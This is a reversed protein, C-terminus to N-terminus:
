SLFIALMPVFSPSISHIPLRNVPFDHKSKKDVCCEKQAEEKKLAFLLRFFPIRGGFYRDIDAVKCGGDGFLHVNRVGESFLFAMTNRQCLHGNGCVYLGGRGFRRRQQRLNWHLLDDRLFCELFMIVIQRTDFTANSCKISKTPDLGTERLPSQRCSMM